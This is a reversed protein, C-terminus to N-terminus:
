NVRLGHRGTLSNILSSKGANSRGAFAIEPFGSPPLREIEGAAYRFKCERAFLLRGAEIADTDVPNGSAASV